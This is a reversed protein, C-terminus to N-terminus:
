DGSEDGLDGGTDGGGASPTTSGGDGSGDGSGSGGSGGFFAGGFDGTSIDKFFTGADKELTTFFNGGSNGSKKSKIYLYGGVGLAILILEDM